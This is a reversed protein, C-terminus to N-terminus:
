RGRGPVQIRTQKNLFKLAKEYAKWQDKEMMSKLQTVTGKELNAMKRKAEGWLKHEEGFVLIHRRQTWAHALATKFAARKEDTLETEFSLISWMAGVPCARVMEMRDRMEAVRGGRPRGGGGRYQAEAPASVLVLTVLVLVYRSATKM